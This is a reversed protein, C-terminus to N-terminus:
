LCTSKSRFFFRFKYVAIFLSVCCYFQIIFAKELIVLYFINKELDCISVYTCVYNFLNMIGVNLYQAWIPVYPHVFTCLKIPTYVCALKRCKHFFFFSLFIISFFNGVSAMFLFGFWTSWQKNQSLSLKCIILESSVIYTIIESLPYNSLKDSYESQNQLILGLMNQQIM